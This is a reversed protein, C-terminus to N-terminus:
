HDFPVQFPQFTIGLGGQGGEWHGLHGYEIYMQVPRLSASGM